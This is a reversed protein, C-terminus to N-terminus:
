HVQPGPTTQSPQAPGGFVASRLKSMINDLSKALADTNAAAHAAANALDGVKVTAAGMQDGFQVAWGTSAALGATHAVAISPNFAPVSVGPPFAIGAQQGEQAELLNATHKFGFFRAMQSPSVGAGGTGSLTNAAQRAFAQRTGLDATSAPREFGTEFAATASNVDNIGKFGPMRKNLQLDMYEMQAQWSTPDKGNTSAWATFGPLEGHPNFQFLGLEGRKSVVNSRLSSEQVANGIVAAAAADSYGHAKLWGWMQQAMGSGRKIAGTKGKMSLGVQATLPFGAQQQVFLQQMGPSPMGFMPAAQQTLQRWRAGADTNLLPQILMAAAMPRGAQMEQVAENFIKQGEPNLSGMIGPGLLAAMGQPTKAGFKRMMTLMMMTRMPDKGITGITSLSGAITETALQGTRGGPLNTKMLDSFLSSMPGFMIGTTNSKAIMELSAEMSSLIRARDMGKAVADQLNNSFAQLLSPLVVSAPQGGGVGVGMAMRAATIPANPNMGSFGPLIQGLGLAQAVKINGAGTQQPIGFATLMNVAEEPGIGLQRMWLPPIPSHLGPFGPIINGGPFLGTHLSHPDFGGARGLSFLTSRFDWSRQSAQALPNMVEHFLAAGPNLIFKLFEFDLFTEAGWKGLRGWRGFSAGAFAAPGPGFGRRGGGGGAGGLGGAGGGAAGLNPTVVFTPNQAAAAATQGAGAFRMGGAFNMGGAGFSVFPRIAPAGFFAQNPKFIALQQKNLISRIEHETKDIDALVRFYPDSSPAQNFRQQFRPFNPHAMPVPHTGPAGRPPMMPIHAAGTGFIYDFPDGKLGTHSWLDRFYNLSAQSKTHLVGYFAAELDNM